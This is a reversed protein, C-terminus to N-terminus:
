SNIPLSSAREPDKIWVDSVSGDPYVWINWEKIVWEKRLGISNSGSSEKPFTTNILGAKNGSICILGYVRDEFAGSADFVMLDVFDDRYWNERNKNTSPIRFIAGRRIFDDPYNNLKVWNTM